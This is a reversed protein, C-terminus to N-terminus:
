KNKKKIDLISQKMKLEICENLTYEKNPEFNLNCNNKKFTDINYVIEKKNNNLKLFYLIYDIEKLNQDVNNFSKFFYIQFTPYKLYFEKVSCILNNKIYKKKYYIIKKRSNNDLKNNKNIDNNKYSPNFTLFGNLDFYPYKNYFSLEDYIPKKGIEILHHYEAKYLISNNFKKNLFSKFYLLDFDPYKNNFDGETFIIESNKCNEIYFFIIETTEDSTMYNKSVHTYFRKRNFLGIIELKISPNKMIFDLYDYYIINSYDSLSILHFILEDDINKTINLKLTSIINYKKDLLTKFNENELILDISTKNITFFFKGDYKTYKKLFTDNNYIRNEKHGINHYHSKYYLKNDGYIKNLDTNFLIYYILNFDSYRYGFEDECSIISRHPFNIKKVFNNLMDNNLKNLKPNFLRVIQLNVM